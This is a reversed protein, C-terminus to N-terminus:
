SGFQFEPSNVIMWLVDEFGARREALPTQPLGLSPALLTREALTSHRSCARLFLTDLVRNPDTEAGLPSRLLANSGAALLDALARGNVAELAQLVTPDQVRKTVVQERTPRGMVSALANPKKDRWARVRSGDLPVDFRNSPLPWDGTVSAIADLFQESSMRRPEPGFDRPSNEDTKTRARTTERYVRSCLILRIVYRLDYDHRMFDYALKDLVESRDDDDLEDIPEVLPRGLLRDWLRNVIVQAFRRNKPRTVMFAVATRRTPLDATASVDGLDAFLFRPPVFKGLPKECRAIELPQDSFFSALAYSDALKWHTTFGDHCSACRISTALFVQAVNQAAQLPPRQSLNVRGRWLVGRLFGDPGNPGPDLLDTVMRDYSMNERLAGFLWRSIPKHLGDISTQEDNRLLDSWFTMWHEAYGRSDALLADVLKEVKNPSRDSEFKEVAEPEPLLGITDLYLRRIVIRDGALPRDVLKAPVREATIWSDIPDASEAVKM